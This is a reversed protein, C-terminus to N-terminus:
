ETDPACWVQLSMSPAAQGNTVVRATVVIDGSISAAVSCYKGLALRVAREAHVRDIGAGDIHYELELRRVRRPAVPRREAAVEIRLAEVPTRRKALIELVDVASCTAVAGLLTEVPGPAVLAGADITHTRGQPGTEFRKEGLWVARSRTIVPAPRPKEAM